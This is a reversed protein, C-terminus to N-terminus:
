LFNWWTFGHSEGIARALQALQSCILAYDEPLVLKRCVNLQAFLSDMQELPTHETFSACFRRYKQWQEGAAATHTDAAVWDQAVAARCAEDLERALERHIGSLALSMGTSLGLLVVLIAIGIWLRKM